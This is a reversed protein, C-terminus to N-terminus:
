VRRAASTLTKLSTKVADVLIDPRRDAGIIRFVPKLAVRMELKAPVLAVSGILDFVKKAQRDM